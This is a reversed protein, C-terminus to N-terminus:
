LRAQERRQDRGLEDGDKEITVRVVATERDPYAAALDPLEADPDALTIDHFPTPDIPLWAPPVTVGAPGLDFVLVGRDDDREGFDLRDLPGPYRVTEVGGVAQPQHIHGLAAYAWGHQLVAQEVLVDDADSMRFLSRNLTAGRVHLHAVLVTPLHPDFGAKKFVEDTLWTTLHDRLLTHEEERTRYGDPLRYRVARPYPVLVFQAADGGAAEFRGFALGNQLYMRGGAFVGGTPIPAALFLGRRVLDINGDDDHNGTVALITGRRAFFPTFTQHIHHLAAAIDAAAAREYFLDGAILLVDAKQEECYAAVREVRAKLDETRDIRGLRDSLHWDASHVIRM